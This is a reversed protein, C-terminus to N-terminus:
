LVSSKGVAHVENIMFEAQKQIAKEILADIKRPDFRKKDEMYEEPTTHFPRVIMDYNKLSYDVMVGAWDLQYQTDKNFKFAGTALAAQVTETSLGSAGHLVMGVHGLGNANLLDDCEKILGLQLEQDRGKSVGHNTGVCCAFMSVGTGSVFQLAEEPKTYVTEASITDEEQGLVRGVEGELIMGNAKAKEAVKRTAKINEALPLESADLLISSIMKNDILWDVFQLNEDTPPTHDLHIGIGCNKYFDAYEKITNVLVKAGLKLREIKPVETAKAHQGAVHECAGLSIQVIKDAGVKDAAQIVARAITVHAVNSAILGYKERKAKKLAEALREGNLYM